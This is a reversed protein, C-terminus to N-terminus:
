TAIWREATREAVRALFTVLEAGMEASFAGPDFAGFAIVGLRAPRGMQLRMLAASGIQPALAGFLGAATPCRGLKSLRHSGLIADVQGEALAVWGDPAADHGEGLEIAIAGMALGFRTRATEDLRRALDHLSQAELLDIVAAHTQAQAAYNARAVAELRRRESSERRHAESVRSLAIPGFDVVNAADLRLGLEGLLDTEQRLWDANLRIAERLAEGDPPAALSQAAESRAV